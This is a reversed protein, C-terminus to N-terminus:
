RGLRPAHCNKITKKKNITQESKKEDMKREELKRKLFGNGM